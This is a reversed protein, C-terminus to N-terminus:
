LIVVGKGFELLGNRNCFRVIVKVRMRGALM